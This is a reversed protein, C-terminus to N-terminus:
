LCGCKVVKKGGPSNWLRRGMRTNARPNVCMQPTVQVSNTSSTPAAVGGGLFPKNGQVHVRSWVSTKARPDACMQPTVQVSNTSSTPAAGGGGLFPKNGQVQVRRWM